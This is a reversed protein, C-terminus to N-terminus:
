VKPLFHILYRMGFGGGFVQIPVLKGSTYLDSCDIVLVAVQVLTLACARYSCEIEWAPQSQADVFPQKVFLDILNEGSAGQCAM